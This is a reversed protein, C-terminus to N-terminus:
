LKKLWTYTHPTPTHHTTNTHITGYKHKHSSIKTAFARFVAINYTCVGSCATQKEKVECLLYTHYLLNGYWVDTEEMIMIIINDDDIM